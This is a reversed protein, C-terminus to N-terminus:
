VFLDKDTDAAPQPSRRPRPPVPARLTDIVAKAAAVVGSVQRIPINMAQNVFSGIRDLGNLASTTMSDVRDAQRRVKEAMEDASARLRTTQEHLDRSMAALDTAASQLKPDLGDILKKTIAFLGNASEMFDKSTQLVPTLKSRFEDAQEKGNAVAKRVTLFIGLLVCAQILVSLGTIAIFVILLTELNSNPM